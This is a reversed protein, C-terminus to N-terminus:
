KAPLDEAGFIFFGDSEPRQGSDSRQFFDRPEFPHRPQENFCARVTVRSFGGNLHPIVEEWVFVIANFRKSRALFNIIAENLIAVGSPEDRMWEPPIHVFVSKTGFTVLNGSIARSCQVRVFRVM